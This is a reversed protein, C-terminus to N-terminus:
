RRSRSKGPHAPAVVELPELEARLVPVLAVQAAGGARVRATRERGTEPDVRALLAVQVLPLLEDTVGSGLAPAVASTTRGLAGAPHRRM